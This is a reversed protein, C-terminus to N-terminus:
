AAIATEAAAAPSGPLRSGFFEAPSVGFYLAARRIDSLTLKSRGRRRDSVTNQALGLAQALEAETVGRTRLLHDLVERAIDYAEDDNIPYRAM